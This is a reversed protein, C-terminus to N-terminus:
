IAPKKTVVLTLTPLKPSINQESKWLFNTKPEVWYKNKVKWNIASSYLNEEILVLEKTVGLIEVEEKRVRKSKIKVKLNNFTPDRFSYYAVYEIKGKLNIDDFNIEPMEIKYLDNLLGITSIVRGNQTFFTKNDASVWIYKGDNISELIILSEKGEFSISSSAYPISNVLEQTIFSEDGYFEKIINSFAVSYSQSIYLDRSCSSILFLLCFIKAVRNINNMLTM